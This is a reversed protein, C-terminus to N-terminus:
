GFQKRHRSVRNTDSNRLRHSYLGSLSCRYTPMADPCCALTTSSWIGIAHLFHLGSSFAALLLMSQGSFDPPQQHEASSVDPLRCLAYQLLFVLHNAAAHNPSFTRFLAGREHWCSNGASDVPQSGLCPRYSSSWHLSVAWCLVSCAAHFGALRTRSFHREECFFITSVSTSSSCFTSMFSKCQM